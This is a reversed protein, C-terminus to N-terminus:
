FMPVNLEIEEISFWINGPEENDMRFEDYENLTGTRGIKQVHTAIAKVAVDKSDFVGMAGSHNGNVAIVMYLTAQLDM